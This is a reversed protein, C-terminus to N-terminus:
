NGGPRTVGFPSGKMNEFTSNIIPKLSGFGAQWLPRYGAKIEELSAPSSDQMLGMSQAAGKVGSYVPVGAGVVAGGLVPGLRELVYRSFAEHEQDRLGPDM